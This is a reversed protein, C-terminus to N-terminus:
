APPWDLWGKENLQVPIKRATLHEFLHPHQEIVIGDHNRACCQSCVTIDWQPIYKGNYAHPWFQLPQTCLFCTEIIPKAVPPKMANGETVKAAALYCLGTRQSWPKATASWPPRHSGHTLWGFQRVIM